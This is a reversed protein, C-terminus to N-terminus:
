RRLLKMEVLLIRQPRRDGGPYSELVGREYSLNTVVVAVCHGIAMAESIRISCICVQLCKEIERNSCAIM